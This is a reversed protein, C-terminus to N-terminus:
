DLGVVVLQSKDHKREDVRVLELAMVSDLHDRLAGAPEPADRGAAIASILTAAFFLVFPAGAGTVPILVMRIGFALAVTMLGFAYRAVTRRPTM